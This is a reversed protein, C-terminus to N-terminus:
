NLERLLAVIRSFKEDTLYCNTPLGILRDEYMKAYPFKIEECEPYLETEISNYTISCGLGENDSINLLLDRKEKSSMLFPLRIYSNDSAFFPTIQKLHSFYRNVNLKRIGMQKALEKEWNHLLSLQFWSMKKVEFETSFKSVVGIKIGPIKKLLTLFLPKYIISVLVVKCMLIAVQFLSYRSSKEYIAKISGNIKNDNTFLVGGEYTSFSKSRAFSFLGVDGQTGLYHGERNKIGMVQAADDIIFINRNGIMKKLESINGTCGFLHTSIIALISYDREIVKSLENYDYELTDPNIDCLITNLGVKSIASPVTNCTFAPIIVKQKNPQISQFAKLAIYLAASGSSVPFCYKVSFYKQLSDHFATQLNENGKLSYLFSSLIRTLSIPSAAAPITQIM